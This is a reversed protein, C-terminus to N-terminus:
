EFAAFPDDEEVKVDTSTTGFTSDGFSDFGAASTEFAATTDFGSSINSDFATDFATDFGAVAAVASEATPGFADFTDFGPAVSSTASKDTPQTFPESEGFPNASSSEDFGSFADFKTDAANDSPFFVDASKNEVASTDGFASFETPASFTDFADKKVGADFESFTDVKVDEFPNSENPNFEAFADGGFADDELKVTVDSSVFPDAVTNSGLGSNESAVPFVDDGFANDFASDGVSGNNTPPNSFADSEAFPDNSAFDTIEAEEAALIPQAEDDFKVFGATADKDNLGDFPDGDIEISNTAHSEPAEYFNDVDPFDVSKASLSQAAASSLLPESAAGIAVQKLKQILQEKEGTLEVVKQKEQNISKTLKTTTQQEELLQVQVSKLKAAFVSRNNM